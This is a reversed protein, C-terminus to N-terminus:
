PAPRLERVNQFRDVHIYTEVTVKLLACSPSALFDALSPHRALYRAALAEKEAGRTEEAQGTATVSVASRFDAERNSRSDALVAVRADAQINAFKQTQRLTAFLLHRLDETVAIAVLSLYPQGGSRTGLVGLLQTELTERVSRRLDEAEDM